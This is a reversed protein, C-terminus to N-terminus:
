DVLLNRVAIIAALLFFFGIVVLDLDEPAMHIRRSQKAASSKVVGVLVM